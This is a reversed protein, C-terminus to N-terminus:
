RRKFLWAAFAIVAALGGLFAAIAVLAKGFAYDVSKRLQNGSEALLNLAPEKETEIRALMREAQM